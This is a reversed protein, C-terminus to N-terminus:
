LRSRRTTTVPAFLPQIHLTGRGRDRSGRESQSPLDHETGSAKLVKSAPETETRKCFRAVSPMDGGRCAPDRPLVAITASFTVGHELRVLVCGMRARHVVVAPLWTSDWVWITSNQKLSLKPRSSM